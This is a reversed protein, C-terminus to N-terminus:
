VVVIEFGDIDAQATASKTWNINSILLQTSLKTHYNSGLSSDGEFWERVYIELIESRTDLSIKKRGIPEM